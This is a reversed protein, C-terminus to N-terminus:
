GLILWFFFICLRLFACFVVKSEIKNMPNEKSLWSYLEVLNDVDDRLLNYEKMVSVAENIGDMGKKQLPSLIADRLPVLYDLKVAM